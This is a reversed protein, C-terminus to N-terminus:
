TAEATSRGGLAARVAAVHKKTVGPVALLAEDSATRIGDITGLHKLLAVKTKPGIGAVGALESKLRSKKGQRRRLHNAFRHAEDRARALFFLASSSTRLPIGNKQGPLYVRDVFKEGTLSEREKALGVIPLDHVGLDR